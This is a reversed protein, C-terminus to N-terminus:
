RVCPCATYWGSVGTARLNAPCAPATSCSLNPSSLPRYNICAYTYSGVFMSERAIGLSLAESIAFCEDPTDQAQTWAVDDALASMRLESCLATCGKGTSDDPDNCWELGAVTACRSASCAGNVLKSGVPCLCEGGVIEFGAACSTPVCTFKRCAYATAYPVTGDCASPDVRLERKTCERIKSGQPEVELGAEGQTVLEGEDPDVATGCALLLGVGFAWWTRAM